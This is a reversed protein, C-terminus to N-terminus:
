RTSAQDPPQQPHVAPPWSAPGLLMAVAQDAGAPAQDAVIVLVADADGDEILLQASERADAVADGSTPITCVVPGGLGWRMAVYGAVANHNSQFFLLPPVRRGADVARAIGEATAVDGTASALLIGTRDGRALDAPPSGFYSRLCRQAVEAVLPNFSSGIFGPIAPLLDAPIAPWEGTALVVTPAAGPAVPAVSQARGPAVPAVSQAAAGAVPPAKV